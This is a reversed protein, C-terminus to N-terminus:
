MEDGAAAVDATSLAAGAGVDNDISAAPHYRKPGDALQRYLNTCRSSEPM